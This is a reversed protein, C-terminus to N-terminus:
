TRRSGPRRGVIRHQRRQRLRGPLQRRLRPQEVFSGCFRCCSGRSRQASRSSPCRRPRLLLQQLLSQRHAGVRRRGQIPVCEDDRPSDTRRVRSEASAPARRRSRRCRMPAAPREPSAASTPRASVFLASPQISFASTLSFYVMHFNALASTARRTRRTGRPAPLRTPAPGAAAAPAPPDPSRWAQVARRLDPDILPEVFLHREIQREDVLGPPVDLEAVVEALPRHQERQHIVLARHEARLHEVADGARQLHQVEVDALLEVDDRDADVRPFARPQRCGLLLRVELAVAPGCVAAPQCKRVPRSSFM